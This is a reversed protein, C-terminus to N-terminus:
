GPLKMRRLLDAYRADGILSRVSPAGVIDALGGDRRQYALELWRFAEDTEGRWAHVEGFQYAAVDSFRRAQELADRSGADDGATHLCMAQGFLGWGLDREAAMERQAEELRGQYLLVRGLFFHAAGRGPDLELERRFAAEAEALRGSNTANRGVFHHTIPRLPDCALSAAYSRAADDHRALTYELVGQTMLAEANGPELTLAHTLEREAATWDWDYAVHIWAMATHADALRPDLTLAKRISCRGADFGTSTPVYGYDAQRIQAWGLGAWAPAFGADLEVAGRFSEIAQAYGEGTRRGTLFRGRLYLDYAERNATVAPASRAMVGPPPTASARSAAPQVGAALLSRRLQEAVALAIEDQVAFLDTLDRDYSQSWLHSSDAARILQATVRLRDQAKRVSGELVHSVDLERAIDAIKADKGKFAFSSTRAIVRLEAVRTLLNLLEEALGDAFYEQDRAQSLDTFPLVAISPHRGSQTRAPQQVANSAAPVMPPLSEVGREAISAGAPEIIWALVVALPFGLILLLTVLRVTWNPLNLAPVLVDSVQLLLWAIVAYAIATRIVKRRQLEALFRL